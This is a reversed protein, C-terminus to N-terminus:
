FRIRNETIKDIGKDLSYIKRNRGSESLAVLYADVIDGQQNKWIDLMNLLVRKERIFFGPISILSEMLQSIERVEIKYFSKLVFIVQFFVLLTCEITEENKEIRDFLDFVELPTEQDDTLFRLIINTDILHM